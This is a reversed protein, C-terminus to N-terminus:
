VLITFSILFTIVAIIVYWIWEPWYDINNWSTIQVNTVGSATHLKLEELYLKESLLYTFYDKTISIGTDHPVIHFDVIISGSYIEDIIIQEPLISINEEKNLINSIDKKFNNEFIIRKSSDELGASDFIDGNIILTGSITENESVMILETPHKDDPYRCCIDQSNGFTTDADKIPIMPPPCRYNLNINTNGRCKVNDECCLEISSGKTNQKVSTNEPCEINESPSTNGSCMGTIVCCDNSSDGSILYANEVFEKDAEVCPYDTSRDINGRCMGNGLTKNTERGWDRILEMITGYQPMDEDDIDRADNLYGLAENLLKDAEIENRERILKSDDYKKSAKNILYPIGWFKEAIEFLPRGICCIDQQDQHSLEDLSEKGQSWCNEDDDINGTCEYPLEASNVKPWSGEDCIVDNDPDINGQCMITKPECCRSIKSQNNCGTKTGDICQNTTTANTKHIYPYDCNFDDSSTQNGLCKFVNTNSM